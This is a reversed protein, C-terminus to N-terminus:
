TFREEGGTPVPSVARAHHNLEKVYHKNDCMPKSWREQGCRNYLINYLIYITIYM